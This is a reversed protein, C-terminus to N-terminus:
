ELLPRLLRGLRLHEPLERWTRHGRGVRHQFPLVRRGNVRQNNLEVHEGFQKLGIGFLVMDTLMLRVEATPDSLM